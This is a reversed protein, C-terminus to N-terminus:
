PVDSPSYAQKLVADFAPKPQNNRDFLLPYSTRGRIPWNNLWSDGDNVGWLTIRSIKDAHKAYIAFIESYRKTLEQQVSAPLGNSYPNLAPDATERRSVEAIPSGSRRPLVDVDLETVMVKIGLKGFATITDEVQQLSPSRLQLHSQTGIGDVKAGAAKLKEVLAVAGKRKASNELSFDNYYLEVNPDAARAFEFAKILYDEGIIKLWPTQRLTGNENLAENVVDWGHVRGKYRGVVTHIHNSMRTLLTDRDASRGKGDSFVWDPTQEHWILTHGVIFMGNKEGFEVYRDAPAFDFKDPEPQIKEWKMVNEPTITNFQKKILAAQASNQETFQAPNLAAGIFFKDKYADKLSPQATACGTGAFLAAAMIFTSHSKM